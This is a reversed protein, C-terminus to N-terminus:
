FRCAKGFWFQQSIGFLANDEWALLADARDARMWYVAMSFLCWERGLEQPIWERFRKMKEM